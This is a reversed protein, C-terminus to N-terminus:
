SINHLVSKLVVNNERRRVAIKKPRIKQALACLEIVLKLGVDIAAPLEVNVKVTFPVPNPDSACTSHFPAINGVVTTLEVCSLAVTAEFRTRAAPVALM